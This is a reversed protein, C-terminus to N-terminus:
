KVPTYQLNDREKSVDYLPVSSPLYNSKIPKDRWKKPSVFIVIVPTEVLAADFIAESVFLDAKNVSDATSVDLLSVTTAVRTSQIVDTEERVLVEVEIYFNPRLLSAAASRNVTHPTPSSVTAAAEAAPHRGPPHCGATVREGPM